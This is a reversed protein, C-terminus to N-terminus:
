LPSQSIIRVEDFSGRPERTLHILHDCLSGTNILTFYLLSIHQENQIFHVDLFVQYVVLVTPLQNSKHVQPVDVLVQYRELVRDRSSLLSVWGQRTGHHYEHYPTQESFKLKGICLKWTAADGTVQKTGQPLSHIPQLLTSELYANVTTNVKTGRRVESCNKELHHHTCGQIPICHVAPQDLNM